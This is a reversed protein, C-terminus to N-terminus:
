ETSILLATPETILPDRNFILLERDPDLADIALLCSCLGGSTDGLREVITASEGAALRLVRDLSFERADERDVIVTFDADPFDHKLSDIVLEIMPQGSVEILPKPFFYEDKPFFSTRGSIPILIQM